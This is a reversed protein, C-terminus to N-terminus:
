ERAKDRYQVPTMEYEKKFHRYFTGLDGFGAEFAVETVNMSPDRLLRVARKLRFEGILRMVTRDSLARIKRQLSRKSIFVMAALAEANFESDGCNEELVRCVNEWFERDVKNESVPSESVEPEPVTRYSATQSVQTLQRSFRERLLRRSELLNHIRMQLLIMHFPKTVYDDAGCEFGEVQHELSAKATLMIVPIHSTEVQGKLERCLEIGDMVPMMLDTVVLDPVLKRAKKLAEAGDGAELIRCKFELGEVIFARIDADDDVVLVLPSEDGAIQTDPLVPSLEASLEESDGEPPSKILAPSEAGIMVDAPLGERDIPLRVTFRTGPREADEFAPSEATIEGGWLDVLEKTLNLGIGSGDVISQEPIRYFRDFIRALHEPEIGAGTDEIVMVLQRCGNEDAKERLAIRVDGGAPTYKISNSVLNVVIKELKDPDFWGRCAGANEFCCSINRQEVLSQLSAVLDGVYRVLDGETAEIRIKGQEIKRFDLLQTILTAVRNANRVMMSLMSKKKVDQEKSLMSQLPGLIVTLPTCLEHSINTFFGTKLQDMELLHNEREAQREALLKERDAQREKLHRERIRIMMWVLLAISAVFILVMSIFWAQMWVAPVVEFACRVPTPDVNFDRDRARVELVHKGSSLNLFTHSTAYSFFSWEDQNLRYSFQILKEPTNGWRDRGSWSVHTNGPQAVRDLFYTIRTNPPHADAIYRITCFPESANLVVEPSRIDLMSYNLWISGDASQRMNGANRSMSFAESFAHSMWSKGDFRSIGQDSSALLTGDHLPLLDAVMDSALGDKTTYKRWVEGQQRYVGFDGKAVWLTEHGDLVMDDSQSQPFEAVPRAKPTTSDYRYITPGGLWLMQDPTRAFAGVHYTFLPPAYRKFLRIGGTQTVEYQLAGGAHSENVLPAGGAGFWMTGDVDEFVANRGIQSAFEPHGCRTWGTGDFVGIAAKWQYLGVAWILGHSSAVLATVHGIVGDEAGYERWTETAPDHSIISHSDSAVFWQVGERSECQFNLGDYTLWQGPRPDVVYVHGVRGIMWLRGDSSEHMAALPVAPLGLRARPYFSGGGPRVAYLCGYGAAWVTGNRSTFLSFYNDFSDQPLPVGWEGRQPDFCRLGNRQSQIDAYWIKGDLGAALSSESAQRENGLPVVAWKSEPIPQGDQVPIHILLDGQDCTRKVVWLDDQRDQCIAMLRSSGSKRLVVSTESLDKSIRWLVNRMLLWITGDDGQRFRVEFQAPGVDHVIVEWEDDVRRVLSKGVVLLLSGDDLALLAKGWPEPRNQVTTIRSLLNEDFPIQTVSLGDYQAISGINGFWLTGDPAEDMCLVSLGDLEGMQQWRWPELLPDAIQPTYPQVAACWLPLLALVLM